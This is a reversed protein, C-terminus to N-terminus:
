QKASCRFGHLSRSRSRHTCSGIQLINNEYINAFNSHSFTFNDKIGEHKITYVSSLLPKSHVATQKSRLQKVLRGKPRGPGYKYSGRPTGFLDLPPPKVATSWHKPSVSPCKLTTRAVKEHPACNVYFKLLVTVDARDICGQYLPVFFLLLSGRAVNISKEKSFYIM